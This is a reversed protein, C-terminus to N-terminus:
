FLKKFDVGIGLLLGLDTEDGFNANVRMTGTFLSNIPVDVGGIIVPDINFDETDTSIGGGAFPFIITRGTEQNKIPIGDTAAISLLNDGSIISSSHISLNNTLSFRGLISFGGEGLATEGADKLGIAGGIGFYNIRDSQMPKESQAERPNTEPIDTPETQAQLPFMLMNVLLTFTIFLAFDKIKKALISDKNKGDLLLKLKFYKFNLLIINM